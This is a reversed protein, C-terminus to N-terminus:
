AWNELSLGNIREFEVTNNTVLTLGGALAHAGVLMDYTTYPSGVEWERNPVTITIINSKFSDSFVHYFGEGFHVTM